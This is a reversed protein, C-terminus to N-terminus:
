YKFLIKGEEINKRTAMYIVAVLLILFLLGGAAIGAHMGGAHSEGGSETM